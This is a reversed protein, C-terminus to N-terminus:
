DFMLNLGPIFTMVTLETHLCHNREAGCTSKLFVEPRFTQQLVTQSGHIKFMFLSFHPSQATSLIQLSRSAARVVHGREKRM